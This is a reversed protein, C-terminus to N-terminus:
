DYLGMEFYWDEPTFFPKARDFNDMVADIREAYIAPGNQIVEPLDELSLIGDKNFHDGIDPDGWYLPITGTAFCDIIKETFYGADVANEITISFRYPHLAPDKWKLDSGVCAGFFDINPDKKRIIEWRKKHGSSFQKASSIMSLNHTKECLGPEKVWCGACPAWVSNPIKALYEKSHTFVKDFKMWNQEAYRYASPYVFQNEILWGIKKGKIKNVLPSGIFDQSFVTTDTWGLDQYIYKIYSPIRNPVVSYSGDQKRLHDFCGDFLNIKLITQM